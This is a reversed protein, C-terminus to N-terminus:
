FQLNTQLDLTDLVRLEITQITLDRKLLSEMQLEQDDKLRSQLADLLPLTTQVLFAAQNPNLERSDSSVKKRYQRVLKEIRNSLFILEDPRNHKSLYWFISHGFIEKPRNLSNKKLVGELTSLLGHENNSTPSMINPLVHYNFVSILTTLAHQMDKLFQDQRHPSLGILGEINRELHYIGKDGFGQGNLSHVANKALEQVLVFPHQTSFMKMTASLMLFFVDGLESAQQDTLKKIDLTSLFEYFELLAFMLEERANLGLAERRLEWLRVRQAILALSTHFRTNEKIRQQSVIEFTTVM